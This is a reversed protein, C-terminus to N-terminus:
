GQWPLHRAEILPPVAAGDDLCAQAAHAVRRKLMLSADVRDLGPHMKQSLLYLAEDSLACRYVQGHLRVTFVTPCGTSQVEHDATKM